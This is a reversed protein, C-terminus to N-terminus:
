ITPVTVVSRVSSGNWMVTKGRHIPRSQDIEFASGAFGGNSFRALPLMEIENHRRM